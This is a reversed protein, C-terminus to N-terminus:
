FYLIGFWEILCVNLFNFFWDVCSCTVLFATLFIRYIAKKPVSSLCCDTEFIKEHNCQKLNRRFSNTHWVLTSIQRVSKDLEHFVAWFGTMKINRSSSLKLLSVIMRYKLVSRDRFTRLSVIARPLSLSRWKWLNNKM